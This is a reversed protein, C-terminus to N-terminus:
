TYAGYGTPCEVTTSAGWHEHRYHAYTVLGLKTCTAHCQSLMSREHKLIALEACIRLCALHSPNYFPLKVFQATHKM